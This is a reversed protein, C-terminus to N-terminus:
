YTNEDQRKCYTFQVYQIHLLQMDSKWHDKM